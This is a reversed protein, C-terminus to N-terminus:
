LAGCLILAQLLFVINKIKLIKRLIKIEAMIAKEAVASAATRQSFKNAM